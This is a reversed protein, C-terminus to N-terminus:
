IFFIFKKRLFTQTHLLQEMIKSGIQKPHKTTAQSGAKQLNGSYRLGFRHRFLNRDEGGQKEKGPSSDTVPSSFYLRDERFGTASPPHHGKCPLIKGTLCVFFVFQQYHRTISKLFNINFTYLNNQIISISWLSLIQRFALSCFSLLVLAKERGEQM